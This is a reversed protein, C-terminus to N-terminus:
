VSRVEEVDEGGKQAPMGLRRRTEEDWRKSVAAMTQIYLKAQKKAHTAEKDVQKADAAPMVDTARADAVSNLLRCGDATRESGEPQWSKRQALLM